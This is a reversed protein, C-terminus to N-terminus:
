LYERQMRQWHAPKHARGGWVHLAHGVGKASLLDSLRRNSDAFPDAEGVALTVSLRRLLGLAHDDALGPLFHTPTHFYVDPDYHGDLLDRFDGVPATLDYRGSFAVVRSVLGPHRLALNVAHYAGMSCGHTVLAPHPNVARTLPLVEHLLYCEYQRHRRLRDPPAAHPNYWSEGDVSDVCVLQLWGADLRDRASEVLGWNEYDYFRGCRTPFTLVRPGAHGFVLLEMDRGLAPSHWRHYERRM